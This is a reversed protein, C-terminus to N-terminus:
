PDLAPVTAAPRQGAAGLQRRIKDVLAQPHLPQTLVASAGREMCDGQHASSTESTLFLVPVRALRAEARLNRLVTMGDVCPMMADLVVRPV